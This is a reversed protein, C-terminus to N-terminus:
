HEHHNTERLPQATTICLSIRATTRGPGALRRIRQGHGTPPRAHHDPTRAGQAALATELAKIRDRLKDLNRVLAASRDM